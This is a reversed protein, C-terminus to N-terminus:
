NKVFKDIVKEQGNSIAIFYTGAVFSGANISIQNNGIIATHTKTEIIKGTIDMIEVTFEDNKETIVDINIWNSTPIPYVNTIAFGTSMRKLVVVDSVINSHGEVDTERLRYYYDGDEQIEHLYVYQQSVSSNGGGRVIGAEKFDVGNMSYEVTYFDTNNESAVTWIIENGERLVQGTFSQLEIATVICDVTSTMLLINCEPHDAVSITYSFGTGADFPGLNMTPATINNFSTGTNNSLINYGNDGADGGIFSLLVNYTSKDTSCIATAIANFDECVVTVTNSDESSETEDVAFEDENEDEEDYYTYSGGGSGGGDTVFSSIYDNGILPMNFLTSVGGEDFTIYTEGFGIIEDTMIEETSIGTTDIVFYYNGYPFYGLNISSNANITYEGMLNGAEDYLAIPVEYLVEEIDSIYYNSDIEEWIQLHITCCNNTATALDTAILTFSPDSSYWTNDGSQTGLNILNNIDIGEQILPHIVDIDAFDFSLSYMIYDGVPVNEFDASTNYADILNDDDDGDITGNDIDVLIFYQADATNFTAPNSDAILKCGGTESCGCCDLDQYGNPFSQAMIEQSGILLFCAIVVTKLFRYM